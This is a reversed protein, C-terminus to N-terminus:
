HAALRRSRGPAPTLRLLEMENASGLRLPVAYTGAGQSVFLQTDGARYAGRLYPYPLCALWTGPFVQGAHTHGAVMVDIARDAVYSVGVPSHHMLLTPLDDALAIRPLEEAITKGTVAHPDFTEDDASMYDLGVLQLGHTRVVENDLVRLGHRRFVALAREHDVLAEHNGNVYYAPAELRELADLVGPRLALNSDILDGNFLVFDPKHRNTEEVVRELWDAGRHNGIHVDAIHMVRVEEALGAVPMEVEVVDLRYANSVGLATLAAAAIFVSAVTARGSLRRSVRLLDLGLLLFAAYLLVFTALGLAIAGIGIWAQETGALPGQFGVYGSVITLTAGVLPWRRRLALLRSVRVPLYWFVLVVLGVSATLLLTLTTIDM